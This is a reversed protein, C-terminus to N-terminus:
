AYELLDYVGRMYIGRGSIGLTSILLPITARKFRIMAEERKEQSYGGHTSRFPNDLDVIRSHLEEVMIQTECLVICKTKSQNELISILADFRQSQDEGVEIFFQKVTFYRIAANEEPM